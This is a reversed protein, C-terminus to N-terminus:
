QARGLFANRAAIVKSAAFVSLRLDQTLVSLSVDELDAGALGNDYLKAAPGALDAGQLFSMVANVSWERMTQAPTKAQLPWPVGGNALLGQQQWAPQTLHLQIVNRADKLWHDTSLLHLNAASLDMTAVVARRTLTFPYSFKMTASRGGKLAKPRGQLTERHKKLVLTDALGDFLVGAHAEVDFDSFDLHADEEVTVEAFSPNAMGIARGVKELVAGALMSKGLNTAGIVLLVPRRWKAGGEFHSVFTDVEPFARAEFYAGNTKLLTLEDKILRKVVQERLDRMAEDADRKRAAHGLPFDQASMAVYNAYSLKKDQYLYQLWMPQPKYWVGAQYDTDSHITGEKMVSVYWLGHCAASKPSVANARTVCVDIRPRIGQFVFPDLDRAYIGVGDTWFFYAHCHHRQMSGSAHLSLELCAAFARAGYKKKLDVVFAKFATWVSPTITLSNYTLMFAKSQLAFTPQLVRHKPVAPPEVMNPDLLPVSFVGGHELYESSAKRLGEYQVPTLSRKELLRVLKEV